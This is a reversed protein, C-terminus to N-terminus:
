RARSSKPERLGRKQREAAIGAHGQVLGASTREAGFLGYYSTADKV